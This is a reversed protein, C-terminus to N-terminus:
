DTGSISTNFTLCIKCVEWFPTLFTVFHCKSARIDWKGSWIPEENNRAEYHEIFHHLNVLFLCKMKKSFSMIFALFQQLYQNLSLKSCNQAVM